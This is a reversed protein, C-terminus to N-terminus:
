YIGKISFIPLDNILTLKTPNYQVQIGASNISDDYLINPKPGIPGPERLGRTNSNWIKEKRHCMVGSTTDTEM